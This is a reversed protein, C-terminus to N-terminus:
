SSCFILLRSIRNQFVDLKTLTRSLIKAQFKVCLNIAILFLNRVLTILILSTHKSKSCTKKIERGEIM